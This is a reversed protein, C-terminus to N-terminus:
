DDGSGLPRLWSPDRELVPLERAGGSLQPVCNMLGRTYPHRANHLANADLVEMVQGAYMIVVRDCFSAVLTEVADSSPEGRDDAVVLQWDSINQECVSEIAARLYEIGRHFPIAVTLRPIGSM